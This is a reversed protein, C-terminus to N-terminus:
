KLVIPEDAIKGKEGCLQNALFQYIRQNLDDSAFGHGGGVMKILHSEVGAKKLATDLEEAQGYPVLPDETGHATFFPVSTRTIWTVPSAEKAKDKLGPGLGGLLQTIANSKAGDGGMTLFDTPGFFNVVCQVRSDAKPFDGLTGELGPNGGSTGLMGVLHGGASVGIVGIHDPDIGYADAKSRLFRIAAKCDHIQAPWVAETSLRYSITATVYDGTASLARIVETGDAKSGSNWAGGHIFVVLPRRKTAHDAPVLLDVSQRPNGKGVYDVDKILEAKAAAPRAANAFQKLQEERSIFGDGDADLTKFHSRLGEPMEQYSVKGDHNADVEAFLDSEAHLPIVGALILLFAPRM